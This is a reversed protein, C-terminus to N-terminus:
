QVASSSRGGVSSTLCPPAPDHRLGSFRNPHVYVQWVRLDMPGLSTWSESHDSGLPGSGALPLLKGHPHRPRPIGSKGDSSGM